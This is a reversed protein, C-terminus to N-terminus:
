EVALLEIDFVLTANPPIPGNRTDGYALSPPIVLRRLGGVRMGTLGRDWGSIVQGAGLQFALPGGGRSSDFQAGKNDEEEENYLWGTYHVTLVRGSAAEAGTGVSLDIQNFAAFHTPATPADDCGVAGVLVCACASLVVASRVLHLRNSWRSFHFM